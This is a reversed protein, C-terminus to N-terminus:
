YTKYGTQKIGASTSLLQAKFGILNNAAIFDWVQIKLKKYHNGGIQEQNANM